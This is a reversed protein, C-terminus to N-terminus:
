IFFSNRKNVFWVSFDQFEADAIPMITGNSFEINTSTVGANFAAQVQLMGMADANTFSVVYESDLYAEGEKKLNKRDIEDAKTQNINFM